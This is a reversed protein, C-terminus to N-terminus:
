RLIEVLLVWASLIAVLMSAIAGLGLWAMGGPLLGCLSLGALMGPLTAVQHLLCRSAVHSTQLYTRRRISELQIVMPVIWAPITIVLFALGLQLASLHPVLGFLTTALTCSLLILGEAARGSIGPLEIIRALNISIAVFLLGALAARRRGSCGPLEVLRRCGFFGHRIDGQSLQECHRSADSRAAWAPLCLLFGASLDYGGIEASGSRTADM